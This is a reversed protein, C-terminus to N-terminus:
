RCRAQPAASFFAAAAPPTGSRASRPTTARDDEDGDGIGFLRSVRCLGRRHDSGSQRRGPLPGRRIGARRCRGRDRLQSRRWSPCSSRVGAVVAGRGIRVIGCITAGPGIAAFDGIEVHHGISASRNVFVHEGIKAAGGIVAGANVYSGSRGDDLARGGCDSRCPRRAAAFGRACADRQASLRYGPTFLPIVYGCRKIAPEVEDAKVIRERSLAHDPGEANKVIAAIELGLRACTEEVDVIMRSGCSFLVIPM